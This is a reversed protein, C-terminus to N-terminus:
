NTIRADRYGKSRLDQRAAEADRRSAYPGMRVRWIAGAPIVQAGAQGALAEARAQSSFAGIQVFYGAGTAPMPAPRRAPHTGQGEEVFEGDSSPAQMVPPPAGQQQPRNPDLQGDYHAGPKLRRAPRVPAPTPARKAVIPAAPASKPATQVPASPPSKLGMKKRLAVLLPEPTALRDGGPRGAQLAAQGQEPPNVRRVRVPFPRGDGGGLAHAAAPTLRIQASEGPSTRDNVRVLITKGSGLHTVEVFSPAPLLAHAASMSAPNFPEGSATAGGQRDYGVAYGVDDFQAVSSPRSPPAADPMPIPVEAEIPVAPVPPLKRKKAADAHGAMMAITLTAVLGFSKNNLLM